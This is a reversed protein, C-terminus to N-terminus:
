KVRVIINLTQPEDTDGVEPFLWSKMDLVALDDFRKTVVKGGRYKFGTVAGEPSLTLKVDMVGPVARPDYRRALEDLVLPKYYCHILSDVAGARAFFPVANMSRALLKKSVWSLSAAAPCADLSIDDVVSLRIGEPYFKGTDGSYPKYLRRNISLENGGGGAAGTSTEWIEDAQSAGYCTDGGFIYVQRIIRTECYYGGSPAYSYPSVYGTAIQTVSHREGSPARIEWVRVIWAIGNDKLELSERKSVPTKGPEGEAFFWLGAVLGRVEDAKASDFRELNRFNEFDSNILGALGAPIGSKNIGTILVWSLILLVLLLLGAKYSKYKRPKVHSKM